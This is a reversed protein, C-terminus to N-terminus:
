HFLANAVAGWTAIVATAGVLVGLVVVAIRRQRAARAQARYWELDDPDLHLAWPWGMRLLAEVALARTPRGAEDKMTELATGDLAALVARANAETAPMSRLAANLRALGDRGEDGPLLARAVLAAVPEAADDFPALSPVDLSSGAQSPADVREVARM